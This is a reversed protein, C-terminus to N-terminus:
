YKLMQAICDIVFMLLNRIYPFSLFGVLGGCKLPAKSRPFVGQLALVTQWSWSEKSVSFLHLALQIKLETIISLM